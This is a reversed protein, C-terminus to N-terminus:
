PLYDSIDSTNLVQNNAKNKPASLARVDLQLVHESAAGLGLGRMRMSRECLRLRVASSCERAVLVAGNKTGHGSGSRARVCPRGLTKWIPWARQASVLVTRIAGTRFRSPGAAVTGTSPGRHWCSPVARARGAEAAPM